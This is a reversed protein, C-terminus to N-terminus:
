QITPAKIIEIDERVSFKVLKIEKNNKLAVKEAIPRLSKIMAEDAGVFPIWSGDIPSKMGIVGETGYQDETIFAHITKIKFGKTM